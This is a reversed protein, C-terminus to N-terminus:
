VGEGWLTGSLEDEKAHSKEVDGSIVLLCSLGSLCM